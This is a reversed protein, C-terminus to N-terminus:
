FYSEINIIVNIKVQRQVKTDGYDLYAYEFYEDEFSYIIRSSKMRVRSIRYKRSALAIQFTSSRHCLNKLSERNQAQGRMPSICSDGGRCRLPSTM